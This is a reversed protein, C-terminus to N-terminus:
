SMRKAHGEWWISMLLFLAPFAAPGRDLWAPLFGHESANWLM